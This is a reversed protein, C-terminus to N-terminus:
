VPTDAVGIELDHLQGELYAILRSRYDREFARLDDVQALAQTSSLETSDAASGKLDRLEGQIYATLRSRYEREFARLADVRRELEERQNILSGMAQRHREQADRVLSDAQAQADGIIHTAATRLEDVQRELEERQNILSGMAQRHRERADRELLDARKQADERIKSAEHQADFIAQDATAQALSLVRAPIDQEDDSMGKSAMIQRHRKQIDEELARARALDRNAEQADRGAQDAAARLEAVQSELKERQSVLSGIFQRNRLQADSEISEAQAHATDVIRRPANQADNLAQGAAEQARSLILEAAANAEEVPVPVPSERGSPGHRTLGIIGMGRAREEIEELAELATAAVRRSDDDALKILATHVAAVTGAHAGACMTVLDRVVAIRVSPLPNQVAASLEAPLEAPRPGRPSTAVYLTGEINGHWGPKQQPVADRVKNYVYDYLEDISILGDGDQDASGTALGDILAGTFVSPAIGNVETVTPSVSGEIAYGIASTATMVASGRGSLKNLIDVSDDGRIVGEPFAGAYCCDLIVVKSRSHCHDLQERIFQTSIATSALRRKRSDTTVLYLRGNDDKIGHGSFYLIVLDDRGAEDFFGEIAQSVQHSASNRLLEVEYQGIAPDALVASLAELDAAPATLRGFASDQYTDTSILLARRKGTLTPGGARM